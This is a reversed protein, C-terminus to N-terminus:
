RSRWAVRYELYSMGMKANRRKRAASSGALSGPALERALQLFHHINEDGHILLRGIRDRGVDGKILARNRSHQAREIRMRNEEIGALISCNFCISFLSLLPKPVMTLTSGPRTITSCAM